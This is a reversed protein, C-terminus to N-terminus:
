GNSRTHVEAPQALAAARVIKRRWWNVEDLDRARQELDEAGLDRLEAAKTM